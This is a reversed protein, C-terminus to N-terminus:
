EVDAAAVKINVEVQAAGVQFHQRLVGLNQALFRRLQADNVGVGGQLEVLRLQADLDVPRTSGVEADRSIVDGRGHAQHDAAILANRTKM